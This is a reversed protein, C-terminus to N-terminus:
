QRSTLTEFGAAPAAMHEDGITEQKQGRLYLTDPSLDIEDNRVEGGPIKLVVKFENYRVHIHPHPSNDPFGGFLRSTCCEPPLWAISSSNHDAPNGTSRSAFPILRSKAIFAPSPVGRIADDNGHGPSAGVL